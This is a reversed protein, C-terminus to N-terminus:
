KAPLPRKTRTFGKLDKQPDCRAEDSRIGEIILQVKDNKRDKLVGSVRDATTQQVGPNKQDSCCTKMNTPNIVLANSEVVLDDTDDGVFDVQPWFTWALDLAGEIFNDGRWTFNRKPGLDSRFDCAKLRAWEGTCWVQECESRGPRNHWFMSFDSIDIGVSDVGSEYSCERDKDRWRLGMFRSRLNGPGRQNPDPPATGGNEMSIQHPLGCEDGKEIDRTNIVHNQQIERSLLSPTAYTIGINIAVLIKM